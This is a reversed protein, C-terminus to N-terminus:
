VSNESKVKKPKNKQLFTNTPKIAELNEKQESLKKGTLRGGVAYNGVGWRQPRFQPHIHFPHCDVHLLCTVIRSPYTCMNLYLYSHVYATPPPLRCCWTRERHMCYQIAWQLSSLPPLPSDNDLGWLTCTILCHSLIVLRRHGRGLSVSSVQRNKCGWLLM